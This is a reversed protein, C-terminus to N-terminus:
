QTVAADSLLPLPAGFPAAYRSAQSAMASMRASSDSLFVVVPLAPAPERPVLDPAVAQMTACLRRPTQLAAGAAQLFEWEEQLGVLRQEKERLNYSLLIQAHHVHVRALASVTLLCAIQVFIKLNM